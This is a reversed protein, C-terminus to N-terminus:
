PRRSLAFSMSNESLLSLVEPKGDVVLIRTKKNMDAAREIATGVQGPGGLWGLRFCPKSLRGGKRRYPRRRSCTDFSGTQFLVEFQSGSSSM